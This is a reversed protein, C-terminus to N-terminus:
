TGGGVILSGILVAGSILVWGVMAAVNAAPSRIKTYRALGLMLPPTVLLGALALPLAGTLASALTSVIFAAVSGLAIRRLTAPRLRVQMTRKGTVADAERDPWATALVSAFTVFLFPTFAVADLPAIGGAGVAVGYLPLLMAGLVANLPEGWGRRMAAVPWLSYALGGVLGLLLLVTAAPSLPRAVLAVVVVVVSLTLALTRPVKSRLGSAELAGSGGSFPTRRALLDTAEDAVENALHVAASAMVLLLLALGFTTLQGSADAGRWLALLVGVVFILGILVIQAPRTMLLLARPWPMPRTSPDQRNPIAPATTAM